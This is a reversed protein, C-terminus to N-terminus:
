DDLFWDLDDLEPVSEQLEDAIDVVKDAQNEIRDAFKEIKEIESEFSVEVAEGAAEDAEDDDDSLSRLAATLQAAAYKTSAAAIKGADDAIDEAMEELEASERYFKRLLKQQREDTEIRDDNITLEGEETVVVRDKSRGSKHTLVLEGDEIDFSSGDSVSVSHNDHQRHTWASAALPVALVILVLLLTTRKM